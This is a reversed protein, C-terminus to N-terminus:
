KKGNREAKYPKSLESLVALVVYVWTQKKAIYVISNILKSPLPVLWDFSPYNIWMLPHTMRVVEKIETKVLYPIYAYLTLALFVAIILILLRRYKFGKVKGIRGKLKLCQVVLVSLTYCLVPTVIIEVIDKYAIIVYGVWRSYDGSLMSWLLEYGMYVVMLVFTILATVFASIKLATDPSYDSYLLLNLQTDMCQSLQMLKEIDPMVKGNEWNSVTQRTIFMKDALQQQTMGTKERISKINQAITNKRGPSYTPLITKETKFPRTLVFFVATLSHIWPYSVFNTNLTRVISKMAPSLHNFIIDSEYTFGWCVIIVISWLVVMTALLFKAIAHLKTEKNETLIGKHRLLLFLAIVPLIYLWPLFFIAYVRNIFVYFWDNEFLMQTTPFKARRNHSYVVLILRLVVVVALLISTFVLEKKVSNETVKKGYLLMDVEVGLKESIKILTDIDPMSRGSEWSSVTQHTVSLEEALQRQTLNQSKRYNKINHSISNM